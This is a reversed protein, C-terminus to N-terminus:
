GTGGSTAVVYAIDQMKRWTEPNTSYLAIEKTGFAVGRWSFNHSGSIVAKTGDKLEYLICKAHLYQESEYHNTLGTRWNDWYQAVSDPRVGTQSPRNFYCTNQTQKILEGLRGSPCMQSIYTIKAAKAALECAREYIISVGRQGADFLITDQTDVPLEIDAAPLGKGNDAILRRLKAALAADHAHLMYDINGFADDCFNVGGFSFVHEDVVSVKAHYRGAYPNLGMRGVWDVTGGLAHIENLLERTTACEAKFGKRDLYNPRNVLHQCFVDALVHVAVGRRAAAVMERLIKGSLPGARVTMASLVIQHKASPILQLFRSYYDRALVVEFHARASM